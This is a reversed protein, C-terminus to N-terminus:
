SIKIEEINEASLYEQIFHPNKKLIDQGDKSKFFRSIKKACSKFEPSGKHALVYPCRKDAALFIRKDDANLLFPYLRCELPRHAYVRCKNEKAELFSCIFNNEVGGPILKIRNHLAFSTACAGATLLANKEEKSVAPAWVSNYEAFRCCGRCTLCFENPIFQGTM